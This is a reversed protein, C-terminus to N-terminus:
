KYEWFLHHHLSSYFVMDRMDHNYSSLPPGNVICRLSSLRTSSEEIDENKRNGKVSETGKINLKWKTNSYM